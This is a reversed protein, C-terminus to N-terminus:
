GNKVEMKALDNLTLGNVPRWLHLCNGKINVYESKRPMIQYCEEEDMWFINKLYTMDEWSPIKNKKCPSMSVHEYGYENLGFVCTCLGSDPLNIMDNYTQTESYYMKAGSMRKLIEEIPKM